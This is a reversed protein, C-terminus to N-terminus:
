DRRLPQPQTDPAAADPTDVVATAGQVRIGTGTLRPPLALEYVGWTTVVGQTMADVDAIRECQEYLENRNENGTCLLVLPEDPKGRQVPHFFRMLGKQNELRIFREVFAEDMKGDTMQVFYDGSRRTNVRKTEKNYSGHYGLVGTVKGDVLAFQRTSGGLFMNACASSCRGSVVTRLKRKRIDEGISRGARSDGGGSEYFAVTDIRDGVRLMLDRWAEWDGPLVRGGAYLVPPQATFTMAPATAPLCLLALLAPVLSGQAARHAGVLMKERFREIANPKGTSKM